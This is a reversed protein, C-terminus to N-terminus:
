QGNFIIQGLADNNEVLEKFNANIQQAMMYLLDNIEKRDNEPVNYKDFLAEREKKCEDMSTDHAKKLESFITENQKKSIASIREEYEPHEKKFAEYEELVEKMQAELDESTEAETKNTDSGYNWSVKGDKALSDFVGFAKSLGSEASKNILSVMKDTINKLKERDEAKLTDDSSETAAKRNEESIAEMNAFAQAFNKKNITEYSNMLDYWLDRYEPHAEDYAQLKEAMVKLQKENDASSLETASTTEAVTTTTMEATTTEATTTGPQSSSGGCGALGIGATLCAIGVGIIIRKKM